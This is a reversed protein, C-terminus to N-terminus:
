KDVIVDIPGDLQNIRKGRGNGGAIVQGNNTGFKWQLIRHNLCDAIYICQEDNDVYIGNPCSLQNLQNGQGNSGAITIGHQEWKLKTHIGTLSLLQELLFIFFAIPKKESFKGVFSNTSKRGSNCILHNQNKFALSKERWHVSMDLNGTQSELKGLDECLTALLPDNSSLQMLLRILYKKTLELNGM